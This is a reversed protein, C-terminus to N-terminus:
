ELDECVIDIRRAHRDFDRLAGVVRVAAMDRTGRATEPPVFLTVQLGDATRLVRSEGTQESGSNELTVALARDAVAQHDGQAGTAARECAEVVDNGAADAVSFAAFPNIATKGAVVVPLRRRLACTVGDELATARPSTRGRVDLVVRVPRHELPCQGPDLGRCPFPGAGPDHCRVVTHGAADLAEIAADAAAPESELVLVEM